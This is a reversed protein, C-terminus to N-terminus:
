NIAALVVGCRLHKGANRPRVPDITLVGGNGDTRGIVRTQKPQNTAIDLDIDCAMWSMCNMSDM